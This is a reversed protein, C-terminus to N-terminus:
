GLTDKRYEKRLAKLQQRVESRSERIRAFAADIAAVGVKRPGGPPGREANVPM